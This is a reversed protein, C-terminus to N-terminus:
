ENHVAPVAVAGDACTDHPHREVGGVGELDGAECREEAPTHGVVLAVGVARHRQRVAALAVVTLGGSRPCVPCCLASNRPKSRQKQTPLATLTARSPGCLM